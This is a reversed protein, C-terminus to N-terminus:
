DSRLTTLPMRSSLMSLFFPSIGCTHRQKSSCAREKENISKVVLKLRRVEAHLKGISSLLELSRVGDRYELLACLFHLLIKQRFSTNEKPSIFVVGSDSSVKNCCFIIM